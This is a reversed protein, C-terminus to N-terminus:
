LHANRGGVIQVIQWAPGNFRGATNNWWLLGYYYGHYWWAVRCSVTYERRLTSSTNCLSMAFVNPNNTYVPSYKLQGHLGQGWVDGYLLTINVNLIEYGGTWYICGELNVRGNATGKGTFYSWTRSGGGCALVELGSPDVNNVPNDTAYEYPEHTQGVLPDVKMFTGTTPQYWRARMNVLNSPSVGASDTYEGAYGFVSATTGSLTGYPGYTYAKTLKGTTKTVAYSSMGDQAGYNLFTAKVTAVVYQEVPTVGPGYVFYDAGNSYLLTLSSNPNAWILQTKTSAGQSKYAAENGFGDYVYTSRHGSPGASTMEGAQNYTYTTTTTSTHSKARSGITNYTYTTNVSGAQKTIEGAADVTQTYTTWTGSVRKSV